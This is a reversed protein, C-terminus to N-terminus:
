AKQIVWHGIKDIMRTEEALPIFEDPLILGRQPHQWRILSELGVIEDRTLSVIPQYYIVLESREIAHWLDAELQLFNMASAHMETNFVAYRAKGNMKARYM